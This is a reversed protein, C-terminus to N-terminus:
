GDIVKFGDYLCDVHTCLGVGPDDPFWSGEKDKENREERRRKELSCHPLRQAAHLHCLVEEVCVGCRNHLGHTSGRTM